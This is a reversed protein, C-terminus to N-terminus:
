KILSMRRTQIIEGAKLTYFYVGSSLGHADFRVDHTGADFRRNAVTDIRQGATNYVELIVHDPQPLSFTITTAPNFPNPYNQALGFRPANVQDEIGIQGDYLSQALDMDALMSAEDTGFAIALWFDASAGPEITVPALAQISVAGDPSPNNEYAEEVVGMSLWNYLDGDVGDDYGSYYEFSHLTTLPHSLWKYGVHNTKFYDAVGSEALYVINEGAYDGEIRPVIEQGIIANIAQAEDNQVTYKVLTYAGDDLAYANISVQVHPPQPPDQLGNNMQMSVEHTGITAPDVVIPDALALFDNRYNFVATESVGVLISIRDIQQTGADDLIRLRGYHALQVEFHGNQISVTVALATAPWIFGVVLSLLLFAKVFRYM